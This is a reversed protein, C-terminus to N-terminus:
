SYSKHGRVTVAHGVACRWGQSDNANSCVCVCGMAKSNLCGDTGLFRNWTIWSCILPVSIWVPLDLRAQTLGTQAKPMWIYAGMVMGRVTVWFVSLNLAM